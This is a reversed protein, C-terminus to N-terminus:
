RVSWQATAVDLLGDLVTAADFHERALERAWQAHREYDGAIARVADAAEEPTGFELLGEGLPLTAGLGTAQLLVPRGAALYQCSRDGIWGAHGAAYAGKVIGIEAASRAVFGRYADLDAVQATGTVTWGGDRLRAVTAPHHEGGALAIEFDAGAARPLAAFRELEPLKSRYWRGGHQLDAYRGVSAVTTYRRVPPPEPLRWGDVVVPPLTHHWRRGATPVDSIPTGVNAGTTFLVDHHDLGLDAGWAADWLQTYVPDQDLYARRRVRDLVLPTTVHGSINILLDAGAVADRLRAISLGTSDTGGDFLQCARALLDFRRMTREFIARNASAAYTCPRGAADRCWDRRVEEVFVVDHGLARLGLVYALRDWATGAMLPPLSLMGGVVVRM